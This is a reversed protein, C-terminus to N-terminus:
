RALPALPVPGSSTADGTLIRRLYGAQGLHFAAHACLHLLFRDTAIQIGGVAEPFDQGFRDLPLAPLVSRVVAATKQLEANLEHRPGSRQGFERERNRVYGSGGLVAGVFYQLNGAVHAALNGASNTVGPATQWVSVDDPFLDLERQFGELERVLITALHSGFSTM